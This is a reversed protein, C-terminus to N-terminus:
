KPFGRNEYDAKAEKLTEFYHGWFYGKDVSNYIWTVYPMHGGVNALVVSLYSDAPYNSYPKKKLIDKAM